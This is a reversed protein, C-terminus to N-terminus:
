FELSAGLTFINASPYAVTPSTESGVGEM